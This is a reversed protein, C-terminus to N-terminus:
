VNGHAWIVMDKIVAEDVEVRQKNLKMVVRPMVGSEVHITTATFIRSLYVSGATLLDPILPCSFDTATSKLTIFASAIGRLKAAVESGTISPLAADDSEPLMPYKDTPFEQKVIPLLLGPLTTSLNLIYAHLTSVTSQPVHM